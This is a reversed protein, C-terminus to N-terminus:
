WGELFSGHPKFVEPFYQIFMRWTNPDAGITIAVRLSVIEALYDQKRKEYVADSPEQPHSVTDSM